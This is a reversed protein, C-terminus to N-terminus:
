WTWKSSRRSSRKKGTNPNPLEIGEGTLPNRTSLGQYPPPTRKKTMISPMEQVPEPPLIVTNEVQNVTDGEAEATPMDPMEKKNGMCGNPFVNSGIEHRRNIRFSPSGSISFMQTGDEAKNLCFIDSTNKHMKVNNSYVFNNTVEM